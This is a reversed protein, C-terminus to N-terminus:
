NLGGLKLNLEIKARPENLARKSEFKICILEQFWIKTM